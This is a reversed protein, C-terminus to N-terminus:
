RYQSSGYSGSYLESAQGGPGKNKRFRGRRILELENLLREPTPGAKAVCQILFRKIPETLLQQKNKM